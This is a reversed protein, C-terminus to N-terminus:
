ATPADCCPSRYASLTRWPPPPHPTASLRAPEAVLQRIQEDLYVTVAVADREFTAALQPGIRAPWALLADILMRSFRFARLVARDRSILAGRRQELTLRKTQ